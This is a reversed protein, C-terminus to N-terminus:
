GTCCLRCQYGGQSITGVINARQACGIKVTETEQRQRANQLATYALHDHITLTRRQHQATTCQAGSPCLGCDRRAFTITIVDNDRRDTAPTWSVSTNGQPWLAVQRLSSSLPRTRLSPGWSMEFASPSIAQQFSPVPWVRPKQQCRLSRTFTYRCVRGERGGRQAFVGEHRM